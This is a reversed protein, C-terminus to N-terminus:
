KVGYSAYVRDIAGSDDLKRVVGDDILNEIKMSLVEPDNLAMVRQMNQMAAISVYPKRNARSVFDRYGNEAAALASIKMRAMLTQRVTDANQQALSFAMGEILGAVVKEVVDPQQRRYAGSVVLANQVGSVNAPYMDLLLTFGKARLQASQGPDVVVADIVGAELGLVRQPVSMIEVFRIGDRKPELGLHDLALVSHIWAGTGIRNVGIRKGRLADPTKIDRGAVLHGTVRASDLTAIVKVDRGQAMASIAAPIGIVGFPTDTTIASIADDVTRIEAVIGHREFLGQEQAIWLPLHASSVILNAISVKTQASAGRPDSLFGLLAGLVLGPLVLKLTRPIM